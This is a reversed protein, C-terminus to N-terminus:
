KPIQTLNAISYRSFKNLLFFITELYFYYVVCKNINAAGAQPLCTLIGSQKNTPVPRSRDRSQSSFFRQEADACLM